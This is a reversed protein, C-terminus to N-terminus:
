RGREKQLTWKQGSTDQDSAFHADVSDRVIHQMQSSGVAGAKRNTLFGTKIYRLVAKHKTETVQCIPYKQQSVHEQIISHLRGTCWVQALGSLIHFCLNLNWLCVTM